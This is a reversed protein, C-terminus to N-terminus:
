IRSVRCPDISRRGHPSAYAHSLIALTRSSTIGDGLVMPDTGPRALKTQLQRSSDFRGVTAPDARFGAERSRCLPGAGECAGWSPSVDGESGRTPPEVHPKSSALPISGGVQPKCFGSGSQPGLRSNGGCDLSDSSLAVHYVMQYIANPQMSHRSVSTLLNCSHNCQYLSHWTM